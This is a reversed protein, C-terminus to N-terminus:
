AALESLGGFVSAGEVEEIRLYLPNRFRRSSPFYPSGQQPLVPASAALPNVLAIGAGGRAAWEGLRRLDALDGIGWSRRSRAAYLQIAWGWTRYDDPLYCSAPAVILPQPQRRGIRIQHYGAPLSAPLAAAVALASGDELMIEAPGTRRRTGEAIVLPGANRPAGGLAARIARITDPSPRRRNGLADVYAPEILTQTAV